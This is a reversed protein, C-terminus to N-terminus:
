LIYSMKWLVLPSPLTFCFCKQVWLNNPLNTSENMQGHCINLSDLFLSLSSSVGNIVFIITKQTERGVGGGFQWFYNQFCIAASQFGHFQFPFCSLFFVWLFISTYSNQQTKTCKSYYIISKKKCFMFFWTARNSASGHLTCFSLGLLASSLSRSSPISCLRLQLSKQSGNPWYIGNTGKNNTIGDM